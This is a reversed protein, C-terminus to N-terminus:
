FKQITTSLKKMMYRFCNALIRQNRYEMNTNCALTDVLFM